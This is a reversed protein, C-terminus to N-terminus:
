GVDPRMGGLLRAADSRRPAPDPCAVSAALPVVVKAVNRIMWGRKWPFRMHDNSM